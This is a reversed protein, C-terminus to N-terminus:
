KSLSEDSDESKKACTPSTVLLKIDLTSKVRRNMIPSSKCDEIEYSQEPIAAM